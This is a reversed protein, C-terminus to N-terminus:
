RPRRSSIPRARHLRRQYEGCGIGLRRQFVEDMQAVNVLGVRMAIVALVEESEEILTRALEFRANEIFEPLRMSTQSLFRADLRDPDMGAKAALRDLSLPRDLSALIWEQLERIDADSSILQSGLAMSLQSQWGPRKLYVALDQAIKLALGCGLDEEVIALALDIGSTVGASTFINDERVFIPRADVEIQPYRLQMTRAEAWHTTARKGDLLGAEALFFCGSCMAALRPLRAAAERLWDTIASSESLAAEIQRTGVLLAVDPLHHQALTRTAEIQVLTDSKVMGTHISVFEVQYAPDQGRQKLLENAHDFVTLPAIAELSQFGPYIIIHIHCTRTSPM